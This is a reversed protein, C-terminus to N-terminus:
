SKSAKIKSLIWPVADDLSECLKVSNKLFMQELTAAIYGVDNYWVIASAEIFDYEKNFTVWVYPDISYSNIKNSILGIKRSTGYQEIIIKAIKQIISWDVHIEHDLEAVVFDECFFFKGFPLRIKKPNLESHNIYDQFTM